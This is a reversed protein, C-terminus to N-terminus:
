LNPNIRLAARYEAIAGEADGKARLANGLNGHAEAFNPNIRLAARCEALAGEVDGKAELLVKGLNYHPEAFNPNIRLAARYEAIADEVDVHELLANGLNNHAEFFNPNIRLAARFEVIAGELDGKAALGNGRSLREIATEGSIAIAAMRGIHVMRSSAWESQGTVSAAALVTVFFICVRARRIQVVAALFSACATRMNMR